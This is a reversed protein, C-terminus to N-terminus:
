KKTKKNIVIGIISCTWILPLLALIIYCLCKHFLGNRRLVGRRRRRGLRRTQRQSQIRNSNNEHFITIIHSDIPEDEYNLTDDVQENELNRCFMCYKNKRYNHWESYCWFCLKNKCCDMIQLNDSKIEDRFCIPCFKQNNKLEDNKINIDIECWPGKINM